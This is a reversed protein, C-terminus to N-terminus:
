GWSGLARASVSGLSGSARPLLLARTLLREFIGISWRSQVSAPLFGSARPSPSSLAQRVSIGFWFSPWSGIVGRM